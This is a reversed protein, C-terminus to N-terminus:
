VKKQTNFNSETHLFKHHVMVKDIPNYITKYLDCSHQSFLDYPPLTSPRQTVYSWNSLERIKPPTKSCNPYEDEESCWLIQDLRRLPQLVIKWKAYHHGAKCTILYTSCQKHTNRQSQNKRGRLQRM